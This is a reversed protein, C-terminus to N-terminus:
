VKLHLAGLKVKCGKTAYSMFNSSSILLAIIRTPTIYYPFSTIANLNKGAFSRSEQHMHM